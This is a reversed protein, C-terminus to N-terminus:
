PANVRTTVLTAAYAVEKINLEIDEASVAELLQGAVRAHQTALYVLLADTLIDLKEAAQLNDYTAQVLVLSGRLDPRALRNGTEHVITPENFPGVYAMPPSFSPPRMRYTQRLQDKEPVTPNYAAKFDELIAGLATRYETRLTAIAM